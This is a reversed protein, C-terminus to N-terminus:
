KKKLSIILIGNKGKEGSHKFAADDKLVSLTAIDEPKLHKIDPVEKGDVIYLPAPKGELNLMPKPSVPITQTLNEEKSERDLDFFFPMTFWVNVPRGNQYGPKWDPMKDIVELAEEDCGYGIGKLIEKQGISGDKRVVFKIFVRGEINAKKASAPYVMNERIFKYMASTGGPFEPQDEVATFIENRDAKNEKTHLDNETLTKPLLIITLDEASKVSIVTTQYGMFSIVIEDEEKLQSLSFHGDVDTTTEKSTGRIEVHAGPLPNGKEDKVKGQVEGLLQSIKQSKPLLKEIVKAPKAANAMSFVLMAFFLPMALAYKILATRKSKQQALKMIRTKLISHNYFNNVLSSANAKFHTAVLIEAYQATGKHRAAYDDAILEHILKIEKRLIHAVPNFWCVTCVLEFWFVDMSHFQKSHVEEHSKITDYDPLNKDIFIKGFVSFAQGELYKIRLLQQLKFLAVSFRLLGYGFGLFYITVAVMNWSWVPKHSATPAVRFEELSVVSIAQSVQETVFWDQIIGMKWFPILFALLSSGLLFGRNIEFFTERRLVLWYFAVSIILYLNVQLLYNLWNM